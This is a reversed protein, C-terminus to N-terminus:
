DPQLLQPQHATAPPPAVHKVPVAPLFSTPTVQSGDLFESQKGPRYQWGSVQPVTVIPLQERRQSGESVALPTLLTQPAFDAHLTAAL